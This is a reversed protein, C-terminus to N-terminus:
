RHLELAHILRDRTADPSVVEDVFGDTAAAGVALKTQAYNDALAAADAGAAIARHETIAVAQSAGMIGIQADPWALTLDSGLDRSNMVIHAGGYAQRLTVTLRPVTAQAFARLLSAGHRIVGAREQAAGPLFGPTDVLVVLPLALRDCLSVFWAGKEAGANDITGGLHQPQNAIVGVPWGDLRALTTVLNRAWREALEFYSGGDFLAAIVDRVDYVRRRETPVCDAPSGSPAPVPAAAPLEGGLASPLYSLLERLLRVASRDNDAVLHAVGNASHVRSGGLDDASIAERTVQEVVKPGTLFLRASPGGMVVFDGLAPSYAAGGACAGSILTVQPVCTRARAQERFIAAYASLAAVGEQLRAGASQPLGIVPVRARRARSITRAITEGGLAGLSGGRETADQLWICVPRGDVRGSGALVGDGVASRWPQFSGPDLLADRLAFSSSATAPALDVASGASTAESAM